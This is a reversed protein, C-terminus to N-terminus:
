SIRGRLKDLLREYPIVVRRLAQVYYLWATCRLWRAKWLRGEERLEMYEGMLDWYLPEFSRQYTKKRFFFRVVTNLHSGPPRAVLGRAKESFFHLLAGRAEPVFADRVEIVVQGDEDSFLTRQAESSSDWHTTM